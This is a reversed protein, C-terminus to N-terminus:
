LGNNNDNSNNQPLNPISYDTIWASGDVMDNGALKQKLKGIQTWNVM